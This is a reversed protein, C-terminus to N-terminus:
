PPKGQEVGPYNVHGLHALIGVEMPVSHDLFLKPSNGKELNNYRRLVLSDREKVLRLIAMHSQLKQTPHIQSDM